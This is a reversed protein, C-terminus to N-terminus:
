TEHKILVLIRAWSASVPAQMRSERTTRIRALGTVWSLDPFSASALSPYGKVLRRSGYLFMDGPFCCLVDQPFSVLLPNSAQSSSCCARSLCLRLQKACLYPFWWAPAGPELAPICNCSSYKRKNIEILQASIKHSAWRTDNSSAYCFAWCDFRILWAWCASIELM